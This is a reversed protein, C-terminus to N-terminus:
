LGALSTAHSPMGCACCLIQMARIRISTSDSYCPTSIFIRAYKKSAILVFRTKHFNYASTLKLNQRIWSLFTYGTGSGTRERITSGKGPKEVLHQLKICTYSKLNERRHSLLIVNEPIHRRTSRTIVSTESSHEAKILTFLILSSPVVTATVLLQLVSRLFV